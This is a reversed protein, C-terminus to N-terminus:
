GHHRRRTKMPIVSVSSPGFIDFAAVICDCSHMAIAQYQYVGAPTRVKVKYAHNRQATRTM